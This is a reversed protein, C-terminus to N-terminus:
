NNFIISITHLYARLKLRNKSQMPYLISFLIIKLMCIILILLKLTQTKLGSHYINFYKLKSLMQNSISIKYNNMSSKGSYHIIKTDQSYYVSYNCSRLRICLDIDEMWFLDENLGNLESFKERPILIAGGSISDVENLRKLSIDKYNKYYNLFDLHYISLFTNIFTPERWFSKQVLGKEDILKPGIAGLNPIQKAKIFLKYISDEILLTDPNLIFLYKGKTLKFGQNVAKSFGANCDNKILLVEPFKENIFDASGDDSNNDIVIVELNIKGRSHKYISQICSIIYERVNYSVIVVSIDM